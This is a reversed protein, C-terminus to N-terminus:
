REAAQLLARRGSVAKADEAAMRVEEARERFDDSLLKSM